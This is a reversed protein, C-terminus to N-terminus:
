ITLPLVTVLLNPWHNSVQILVTPQGNDKYLSFITNHYILWIVEMELGTSKNYQLEM